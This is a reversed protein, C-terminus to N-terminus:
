RCTPGRGARHVRRGGHHRLPRDPQVRVVVRRGPPNPRVRGREARVARVPEPRLGGVPNTRVRARAVAHRQHRVPQVAQALVLRRRRFVQPKASLLGLVALLWFGAAVWEVGASLRRLLLPQHRRVSQLLTLPRSRLLIVLLGTVIRTCAYLIVAVYAGGLAAGGVLEALSVYGVADAVLCLAFAALWVRVGFRVIWGFLDTPVREWRARVLLVLVVVGGLMEALFLGRAVLPYAAVVLRVQDVAYSVVLADLIAFLRREVVRRLLFVTPM